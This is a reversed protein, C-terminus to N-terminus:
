SLNLLSELGAVVEGLRGQAKISQEQTSEPESSPPGGLMAIVAALHKLAAPVFWDPSQPKFRSGPPYGLVKTLARDWEPVDPGASLQDLIRVAGPDNLLYEAMEGNNHMTTLAEQFLIIKDGTSLGDWEEMAERMQRVASYPSDDDEEEYEMLQEAEQEMATDWYSEEAIKDLINGENEQYIPLEAIEELTMESLPKRLGEPTVEEEDMFEFQRQQAKKAKISDLYKIWADYPDEELDEGEEDEEMM